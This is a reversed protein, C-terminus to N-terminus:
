VQREEAKGKKAAFSKAAFSRCIAEYEEHSNFGEVEGPDDHLVTGVKRGDAKLLGPLDTLYYEQQANENRIRELHEFAGPAGFVAIGTYVERIARTADDCDREEVIATFEGSGDRIIRGYDTPDERECTIMTLDNGEAENTELLRALTEPRILPGDGYLVLLSGSFGALAEKTVLVAHGTGLQKEQTVFEVPERAFAERVLEAMHGVVLVIRQPDLSKAAELPYFLAPKGDVPFMVKPLDSKMRKGKGAALIVVALARGM